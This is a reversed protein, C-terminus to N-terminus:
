ERLFASLINYWYAVLVVEYVFICKWDKKELFIM